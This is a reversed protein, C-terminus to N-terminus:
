RGKVQGVYKSVRDYRAGKNPARLLYERWFELTKATDNKTLYIDGLLYYTDFFEKNLKVSELLYPLAQDNLRQAYQLYGLYYQALYSGQPNVAVANKFDQEAGKLDKAFVKSLGALVHSELTDTKGQAATQTFSLADASKKQSFLATAKGVQAELHTPYQLLIADFKAEAEKFYGTGMFQNAEKLDNLLIKLKRDDEASTDQALATVTTLLTLFLLARM